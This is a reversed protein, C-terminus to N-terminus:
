IIFDACSELYRIAEDYSRRCGAPTALGNVKVVYRPGFETDLEYVYCEYDDTTNTAKWLTTGHKAYFAEDVKEMVAIM